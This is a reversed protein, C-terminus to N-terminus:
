GNSFVEEIEIKDVEELRALENQVEVMLLTTEFFLNFEKDNQYYPAAKKFHECAAIYDKAKLALLAAYYSKEGGSLM